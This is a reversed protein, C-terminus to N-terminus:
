DFDILMKFDSNEKKSREFEKQIDDIRFRHTIYKGTDIAGSAIARIVAKFCDPTHGKSGQIRKQFVVTEYVDVLIKEFNIGVLM